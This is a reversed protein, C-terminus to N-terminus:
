DSWETVALAGSGTYRGRTHRGGNSDAYYISDMAAPDMPIEERHKRRMLGHKEKYDSFSLNEANADEALIANAMQELDIDEGIRADSM